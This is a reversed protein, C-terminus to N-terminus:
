NNNNKNLRTLIQSKLFSITFEDKLIILGIGYILAGLVVQIVVIMSNKFITLNSLLCVCVLM